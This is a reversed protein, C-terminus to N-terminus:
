FNFALILQDLVCAMNSAWFDDSHGGLRIRGQFWRRAQSELTLDIGDQELAVKTLVKGLLQDDCACLAAIMRRVVPKNQCYGDLSPGSVSTYTREGMVVEKCPLWGHGCM